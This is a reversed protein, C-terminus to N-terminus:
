LELIRPPPCSIGPNTPTHPPLKFWGPYTAHPPPPSSLWTLPPPSCSIRQGRGLLLFESFYKVTVTSLTGTSLATITIMMHYYKSWPFSLSKPHWPSLKKKWIIHQDPHSPDKWELFALKRTIKKGHQNTQMNKKLPFPQSKCLSLKYCLDM